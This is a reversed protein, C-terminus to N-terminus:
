DDLDNLLRNITEDLKDPSEYAGIALATRVKAVLDARVAPLERLRSLLQARRSVELRDLPTRSPDHHAAGAKGNAQVPPKLETHRLPGVSGPNISSIDQM